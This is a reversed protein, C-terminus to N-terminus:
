FCRWLLVVFLALLYTVNLLKVIESNCFLLVELFPIPQVHIYVGQRNKIDKIQDELVKQLNRNALVDEELQKRLM